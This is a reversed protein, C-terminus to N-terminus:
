DNSGFNIEVILSITALPPNTDSSITIFIKVSFNFSGSDALPTIKSPNGLVNLYNSKYSFIKGVFTTTLTM